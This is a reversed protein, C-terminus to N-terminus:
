QKISLDSTEKTPILGRYTIDWTCSQSMSPYVWDHSCNGFFDSQKKAVDKLFIVEHFIISLSMNIQIYDIFKM